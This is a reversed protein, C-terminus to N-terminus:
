SLNLIRAANHYLIKRISDEALPLEKIKEVNRDIREIGPWDSGFVFKDINKEMDPFYDLLNQPPLGSIELYLNEHIRSLFFAKDYWFGRGSHAMLLKLQPFDSAVDDLHLPDAYKIKAGKFVSSGTHILVPFGLEEALSYLPYLSSENPYFHNYSPYLKIGKAGMRIFKKAEQAPYSALSPNVTCFPIFVGEDQCFELVYENSVVGTTIPSIEPLIVAKEINQKKLYLAFKKPDIMQEYKEYFEPCVARQYSNVWEHWDEKRGIHIHFDIIRLDDTNNTKKM